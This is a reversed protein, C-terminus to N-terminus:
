REDWGTRARERQYLERVDVRARLRYLMALTGFHWRIIFTGMPRNRTQGKRVFGAFRDLGERLYGPDGFDFLGPARYPRWMWECWAELGREFDPDIPEGDALGACERAALLVEDRGGRIARDALRCCEWELEDYPRVCGFDLFGLRGDPLFLFNGPHPDAYLLRGGYHLRGSATFVLTGFRDREEQPPDTALYDHIHVGDLYDMTLVRATSLSDHVRPIVIDDEDSFLSRARRMVDAEYQYDTEREIVARVDELQAKVHEWRKTLRLPLLLASLARLDSGISRAIGPYQIKVAVPVGGALLGRHVQGLSAAARARTEFESFVHALDEGLEGAVYERLLAFHMPPADFHLRALTDVFEDPVLDPFNALAQGVKMAAGRLYTMTSLTEIATRLHAEGLRRQREDADTFWSRVWYALYALAVQAQLGGLAWARRPTGVPIADLRLPDKSEDRPAPLAAM